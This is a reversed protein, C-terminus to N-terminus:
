RSHKADFRENPWPHCIRSAPIWHQVLRNMKQWTICRKESHRRLGRYCCRALEGRFNNVARYNTPVAYYQAFGRFVQALWQGQEAIARHLRKSM